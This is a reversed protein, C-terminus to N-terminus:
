RCKSSRARNAPRVSTCVTCRPQLKASRRVVRPRADHPVAFIALPNPGSRMTISTARASEDRTRYAALERAPPYRSRPRPRPPPAISGRMTHVNARGTTSLRTSHYDWLSTIVREICERHRVALPTARDDDRLGFLCPRRKLKMRRNRILSFIAITTWSRPVFNELNNTM